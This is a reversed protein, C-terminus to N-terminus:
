ECLWVQAGCSTRLGEGCSLATGRNWSMRCSIGHAKGFGFEMELWVPKELVELVLELVVRV